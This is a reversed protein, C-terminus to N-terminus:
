RFHRAVSPLLLYIIIVVYIIIGILASKDLFHLFIDPLNLLSLMGEFLIALDRLWRSLKLLGIGIILLYVSQIFPIWGLVLAWDYKGEILLAGFRLAALVSLLLSAFAILSVGLPRKVKDATPPADSNYPLMKSTSMDDM